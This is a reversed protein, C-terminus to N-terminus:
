VLPLAERKAKGARAGALGVTWGRREEGLFPHKAKGAVNLPDFTLFKM